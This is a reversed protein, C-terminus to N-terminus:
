LPPVPINVASVSVKSHSSKLICYNSTQLNKNSLTRLLSWCKPFISPDHGSQIKTDMTFYFCVWSYRKWFWCSWTLHRIVHTFCVPPVASSVLCTECVNLRQVPSWGDWPGIGVQWCGRASCTGTVGQHYERGLGSSWVSRKSIDFLDSLTHSLVSVSLSYIFTLSFASFSFFLCVSCLGQWGPGIFELSQYISGALLAGSEALHFSTWIPRRCQRCLTGQIIKVNRQQPSMQLAKVQLKRIYVHAVSYIFWYLSTVM